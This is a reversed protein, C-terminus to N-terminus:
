YNLEMETSYSNSKTIEKALRMSITRRMACQESPDNSTLIISAIFWKKNPMLLIQLLGAVPALITGRHVNPPNKEHRKNRKYNTQSTMSRAIDSLKLKSNRGLLYSIQM